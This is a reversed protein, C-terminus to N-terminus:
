SIKMESFVNPKDGGAKIEGVDSIPKMEWGEPIEKEL